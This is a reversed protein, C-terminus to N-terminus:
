IQIDQFDATRQVIITLLETLEVQAEARDIGSSENNLLEGSLSRLEPLSSLFVANRQQEDAWRNLNDIKLEAIVGLKDEVTSRLSQMAQRYSFYTVTATMILAFTVYYVILKTQITLRQFPSLLRYM